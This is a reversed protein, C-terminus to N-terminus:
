RTALQRMAERNSFYPGLRCVHRDSMIDLLGPSYAFSSESALLM